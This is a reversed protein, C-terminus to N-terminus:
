TSLTWSFDIGACCAIQKLLVNPLNGLRSLRAPRQRDRWASGYFALRCDQAAALGAQMGAPVTWSHQHVLLLMRPTSCDPHVVKHCRTARQSLVWRLLSLDGQAAALKLLAPDWILGLQPSQAALQM